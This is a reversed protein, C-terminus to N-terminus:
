PAHVLADHPQHLGHLFLRAARGAPHHPQARQPVGGVRGSRGHGLAASGDAPHLFVRLRHRDAGTGGGLRAPRLVGSAGSPRALLHARFKRHPRGRARDPGSAKGAQGRGARRDARRDAHRHPHRRHRTGADRSVRAPHRRRHRAQDSAVRRPRGPARQHHLDLVASLAAQRPRTGPLGARLGVAFGPRGVVALVPDVPVVRGILFTVLLLGFFTFAITLLLRFVRWGFSQLAGFRGGAYDSTETMM